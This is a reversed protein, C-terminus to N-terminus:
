SPTAPTIRAPVILYIDTTALFRRQNRWSKNNGPEPAELPAYTKSGIRKGGLPHVKSGIRLAM